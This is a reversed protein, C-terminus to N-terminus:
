NKENIKAKKIISKNSFQSNELCKKDINEYFLKGDNFEPKKNYLSLCTNNDTDTNISKIEAFSSDKIAIGINNQSIEVNGLFVTSNEGISVGKDYCDKVKINKFIYNGFSLDVCDGDSGRSTINKIKVKSFDMDIGDSITRNIEINNFEIKSSIVNIGDECSSSNIKIKDINAKV